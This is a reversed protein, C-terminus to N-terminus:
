FLISMENCNNNMEHVITTITSKSDVNIEEYWIDAVINRNYLWFASHAAFVFANM